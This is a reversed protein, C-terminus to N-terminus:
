SSLINVHTQGNKVPEQWADGEKRQIWLVRANRIALEEEVFCSKAWSWMSWEDTLMDITKLKEEVFLPLANRFKGDFAPVHDAGDGTIVQKYFTRLADLPSVIQRKAPKVWTAGRTEWSYHNGPITLLDKDLSACIANDGEQTLRIGCRDDVEIDNVIEAKYKLLMHERVEQLWLPRPQDKRNAKYEPYIAYRWNGEGSIYMEVDDSNLDLQIQRYMNEVRWIAEELSEQYPKNKTPSCSAAARYTLHDGDLIIKM